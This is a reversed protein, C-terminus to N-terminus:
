AHTRVHDGRDTARWKEVAQRSRRRLVHYNVFLYSGTVAGFLATAGLVLLLLDSVLQGAGSPHFLYTHLFWYGYWYLRKAWNRVLLVQGSAESVVILTRGPDELWVLYYPLFGGRPNGSRYSANRFYHFSYTTRREIRAVPVPQGLADLAIASALEVSVPSLVAGSDADLLMFYPAGEFAIEYLPREGVWRFGISRPASVAGGSRAAAEARALAEGVALRGPRRGASAGLVASGERRRAEPDGARYEYWLYLDYAAFYMGSVGWLTLILLMVPALGRHVGRIRRHLPSRTAATPESSSVSDM